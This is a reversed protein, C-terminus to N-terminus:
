TGTYKGWLDSKDVYKFYQEIV